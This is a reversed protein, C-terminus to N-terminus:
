VKVSDDNKNAYHSKGYTGYSGYGGYGGYGGYSRYYGYRKYGGYKGYGYRYSHKRASLDIGNLVLSANGLKGARFFDDIQAINEKPTYDARAIVMTVDAVRSVSITDSVLCVPATDLLVYDYEKRLEAIIEDLTHRTILEGPNPPIPGAMLLDLNANLGSSIIQTKIDDLTPKAMTLLPTIGRKHDKIQFLDALRPKRIDLGVLCVRKGLLAFSVALNSIIFTKGEGSISSTAMIVNKGEPLMFQVNTRLSRFIEEMLNNKNEHVVVDGVKGQVDNAVPIDAIIPLRTIKELDERSEIKYKLFDIILLIVFPLCLGIAFAVLMVMSKKPKVLRAYKVRDLLKGKNATAALSISNEERKQLLLTYLSTQVTQQRGIETLVRQQEPTNYIQGQYKNYEALIANKQINLTKEAQAIALVISSHLEDLKVTLPRLSPNLESATRLLTLRELAVKNYDSILSTANGDQLGINTPIVQYQNNEDAIYSSLSNLLAIQTNIDILRQNYSSSGQMTQSESMSLEIMNNTKKYREIAGDTGALEDNIKELRSNIFEETRLATENKEENAQRNYADVLAEIYDKARDISIDQLTLDVINSAKGNQSVSLRSAYRMAVNKPSNINILLTEDNAMRRSQHQAIEIPGYETDITFPVSTAVQTKEVAIYEWVDEDEPKPKYYNTTVEYRGNDFHIKINIPAFLRDLGESSLTADFPRNKYCLVDRIRGLHYYETYLQLNRVAEEAPVSSKLIMMENDIGQTNSVLGLTSANALTSRRSSGDNNDKILLQGTSLYEPTAYRCYFYATAVAIVISAIFWPWNIIVMSYLKKFNFTNNDEDIIVNSSATAQSNSALESM